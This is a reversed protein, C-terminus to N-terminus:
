DRQLSDALAAVLEPHDFSFGDSLLAAPAADVGELLIPQAMDGYALRLMMAPVPVVAPRNLAKGLAKAFERNTVVGPAVVNFAGSKESHFLLHMCIRVYDHLSIWPFPQKGNGVPGGAGSKFVPLLKALAGGKPSLVASTRLRCVRPIFKEAKAAEAEWHLCVRSLFDDGPTANEELKAGMETAHYYNIGSASLFVKPPSKLKRLGEVLLRTSRVRSSYIKERVAGSWRQAIPEGALHVIADIAELAEVDLQDTAPDWQVTGAADSRSIILVEHGQDELSKRLESGIMGTGGTIAIKWTQQETDDM